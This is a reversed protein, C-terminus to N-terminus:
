FLRQNCVTVAAVYATSRDNCLFNVKPCKVSFLRWTTCTMIKEGQDDFGKLCLHQVKATGDAFTGRCRNSPLAPIAAM